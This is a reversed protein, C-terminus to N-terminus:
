KLTLVWSALARAEDPTLQTNAPMPVSGWVGASGETIKRSLYASADARASYKAAIDHFAPGMLQLNVAHCSVCNQSQALALGAAPQACATGATAWALVPTVALFLMRNM